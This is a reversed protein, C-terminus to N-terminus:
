TEKKKKKGDFWKNRESRRKLNLYKTPIFLKGGVFSTILRMLGGRERICLIINLLIITYGRFISRVYYFQSFRSVATIRIENLKTFM